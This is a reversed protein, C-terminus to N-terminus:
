AEDADGHVQHSQDEGSIHTVLLPCWAPSSPLTHSAATSKALQSTVSYSGTRGPGTKRHYAGQDITLNQSQLVPNLGVGTIGSYNSSLHSGMESGM